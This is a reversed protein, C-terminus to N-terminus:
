KGSKSIGDKELKILGQKYLRGVARKFSAKSMNLAAKIQEPKSKDHLGIRGGREELLALIKRTDDDMEQYAKKRPTCDLKGDVRVRKIRVTMEEGLIMDKGITENKPIMGHYKNDVAIFYADLEESYSYVTGTALEGKQYPAGIEMQKYIEMTASIRGKPNVTLMVLPKDGMSIEDRHNKHPLFLDHSLGWELFAGLDTIDVVRCHKIEGMVIDPRKLSAQLKGELDRDVFAEVSLGQVGEKNEKVLLNLEVEDGSEKDALIIAEEEISKVDLLNINGLEIM